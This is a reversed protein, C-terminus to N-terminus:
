QRPYRQSRSSEAAARGSAQRQSQENQTRWVEIRSKVQGHCCKVKDRLGQFLLRSTEKDYAVDVKYEKRLSVMFTYDQALLQRRYQWPVKLNWCVERSQPMQQQNDTSTTPNNHAEHEKQEASPANKKTHTPTAAERKTQAHNTPTDVKASQPDDQKRWVQITNKLQNHCRKVDDILGQIRLNGNTNDYTVEVHNSHRLCRLVDGQNMIINRRFRLPIKITRQILTQHDKTQPSHAAVDKAVNHEAEHSPPKPASVHHSGESTSTDESASTGTEQFVQDGSAESVGQRPHDHQSELRAPLPHHATTTDEAQLSENSPPAEVSPDLEDERTQAEGAELDTTPFETGISQVELGVTLPSFSSINLSLHVKGDVSSQQQLCQLLYTAKLIKKRITTRGRKLKIKVFTDADLNNLTEEDVTVQCENFQKGNHAVNECRQPDLKMLVIPSFFTKKWWCWTEVQEALVHIATVKKTAPICVSCSVKSSPNMNNFEIICFCVRTLVLCGETNFFIQFCRRVVERWQHTM